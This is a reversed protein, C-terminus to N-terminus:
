SAEAAVEDFDYDVLDRLLDIQAKVAAESTGGISDRRDAARNFTLREHVDRDFLDSFQKYAALPFSFLPQDIAIAQQVIQGVLHHAERFPMGKDVLYDALETALMLSDMSDYIRGTNVKLTKVVGTVIPLAMSLTDVADFLPEKDEQSDKNYTSPQGKLTTLLGTLSGVVRGTKGRVLELSDPNKKQPMLSSGTAYADDLEVFGFERSSYIILDEALRSLHLQTIAAWSLFEVIYDRDSVADMSNASLASFGLAHALFVRDLNFPNGALAGSGLPLVDVRKTLDDLREKDRQLMWVFSLLWHSFRVPQAQQLHTYGPMIVNLHEIAKAIMVGQLTDLLEQLNEIKRKLWLRTDTAVQDNRSRGTHLKGALDGVLEGLRREVASHIDEDGTKLEFRRQAFEARIEDLGDQIIDAEEETIVEARALAKAYVMSGDLDAEWLRIDFFISDNFQRMLADSEGSFRGGWLQSM